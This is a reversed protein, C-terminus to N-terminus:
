PQEDIVVMREGTEPDEVYRKKFRIPADGRPASNNNIEKNGQKRTVKNVKNNYIQGEKARQKGRMQGENASSNAKRQATASAGSQYNEYNNITIVTGQPSKELTVEGTEKLHKLSTRIQKISLNLEQSLNTLTAVRQGVDIQRNKWRATTYNATLILHIFLRATNADNYWEWNLISRYLVVFGGDYMQM